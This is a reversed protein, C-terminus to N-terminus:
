VKVKWTNKFIIKWSKTGIIEPNSNFEIGSIAGVYRFNEMMFYYCITFPITFYIM